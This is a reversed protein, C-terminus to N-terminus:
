RRWRWVQDLGIALLGAGLGWFASGVGALSVGSATVAFALVAAFRQDEKSLAAALSGMLPGLLATGAVTAILAPPLTGFLTVLSAGFVALVLYLGGYIPGTMWRKAPDPHADPGTCIAATISSLNISYGGFPAGVLSALGTTMLAGRMPPVYGSVRLVAAGAIQQTAMTVLFLPLGLGVLAPVSFAPTIWTLTSLALGDPLPMPIGLAAALPVGAVIVALPASAAHALRWVLFLAILPLVLLPSGQASQFLALVFRLLLGAL